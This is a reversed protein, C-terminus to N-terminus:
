NINALSGSNGRQIFNDVLMQIGNLSVIQILFEAINGYIIDDCETLQCKNQHTIQQLPPDWHVRNRNNEVWGQVYLIGIQFNLM